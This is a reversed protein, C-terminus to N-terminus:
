PESIKAWFFDVIVPVDRFSSIAFGVKGEPLLFKKDELRRAQEGNIYLTLTNGQCSIGYENEAMGNRIAGSGGDAIPIYEVSDGNRKGYLIEYLGNNAINFEFWGAESMRCILSVNNNNVGRNNVRVDLRVDTYIQPEYITYVWAEPGQLDFVLLGGATRVSMLGVIGNVVEHNSGNVVMYQWASNEANFEETFFKQSDAEPVDTQVAEVPAEAVSTEAQAAPAPTPTGYLDVSCALSALGLISLFTIWSRM